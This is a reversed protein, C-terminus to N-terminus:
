ESHVVRMLGPINTVHSLAVPKRPDVTENSNHSECHAPCASYFVQVNYDGNKTQRITYRWEEDVLATVRRDTQQARELLENRALRLLVEANVADECVLTHNYVLTQSSKNISIPTRNFVAHTRPGGSTCTINLLDSPQSRLRLLFPMARFISRPSLSGVSPNATPHLVNSPHPPALRTTRTVTQTQRRRIVSTPSSSASSASSSSTTTTTHASTTTSTSSSSTRPPAGPPPSSSPSVAMGLPTDELKM